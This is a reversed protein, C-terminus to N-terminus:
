NHNTSLSLSSFLSSSVVRFRRIRDLGLIRYFFARRLVPGPFQCKMYVFCGPACFVDHSIALNKLCRRDTYVFRGFHDSRLFIYEASPGTRDNRTCSISIKLSKPSVTRHEKLGHSNRTCSVNIKHEREALQPIATEAGQRARPVGFRALGMPTGAPVHFQEWMLRSPLLVHALRCPMRTCVGHFTIPGRDELVFGLSQSALQSCSRSHRKSM